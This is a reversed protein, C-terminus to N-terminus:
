ILEGDFMKGLLEVFLDDRPSQPVFLQIGDGPHVAAKLAMVEAQTQAASKISGDLFDGRVGYMVRKGPFFRRVLKGAAGIWAMDRDWTAAAAYCEQHVFDCHALLPALMEMAHKFGPVSGPKNAEAIAQELTFQPNSLLGYVALPADSIAKAISGLTIAISQNVGINTLMECDIYFVQQGADYRCNVAAVALAQPSPVPTWINGKTVPKPDPLANLLNSNNFIYCPEVRGVYAPPFPQDTWAYLKVPDNEAAM